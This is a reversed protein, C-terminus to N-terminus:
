KDQKEGKKEDKKEDKKEVDPKEVVLEGAELGEKIETRGESTAGVKV